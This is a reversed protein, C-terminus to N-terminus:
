FEVDVWITRGDDVVKTVRGQGSVLHEKTKKWIDSRGTPNGEVKISETNRARVIVQKAGRGGYSRAIDQSTSFSSYDTDFTAGEKFLKGIKDRPVDLGKFLVKPKVAEQENLWHAADEVASRVDTMTYKSNADTAFRTYEKSWSTPLGVGDMAPKGNRLNAAAKKVAKEARYDNQLLTVARKDRDDVYRWDGEALRAKLTKANVQSGFTKVAPTPPTPAPQQPKSAQAPQAQSPAAPNSKGSLPDRQAATTPGASAVSKPSKGTWAPDMFISGDPQLTGRYKVLSRLTPIPTCRGNPHDRINPDQVVLGDRASCWQCTRPGNESGWVMVIAPLDATSDWANKWYASTTETRALRELQRYNKDMGARFMQRAADKSSIGALIGAQIVTQQMQDYVKGAYPSLELLKPAPFDGLAGLSAVRGGMRAILDESRRQFDNIQDPLDTSDATLGSIWRLYLMRLEREMLGTPITPM